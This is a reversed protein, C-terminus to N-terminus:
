QSIVIPGNINSYYKSQNVPILAVNLVKSVKNNTSPVPQKLSASAQIGSKAKHQTDSLTTRM